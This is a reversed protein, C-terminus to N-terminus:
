SDGFSPSIVLTYLIAITFSVKHKQKQKSDVKYIGETRACGTKHIPPEDLRRKKKPPPPIDTPPHDVWHTDNLWYSQTDDALMSEYSRKLLEIDELDIGTFILIFYRYVIFIGKCCYVM